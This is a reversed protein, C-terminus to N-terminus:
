YVIQLVRSVNAVMIVSDAKMTAPKFARRIRKKNRWSAGSYLKHLTDHLVSTGLSYAIFHFPRNIGEALAGAIQKAISVRIQEGVLTYRYILVDLVHTNFFSDNTTSDHIRALRKAGTQSLSRSLGDSKKMETLLRGFNDAWMERRREFFEDYNLPVIDFRRGLSSSSFTLGPYFKLASNLVKVPKNHWSAAANKGMGHLLFVIPKNSM